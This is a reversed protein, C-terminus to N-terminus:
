VKRKFFTSFHIFKKKIQDEYDHKIRFKSSVHDRIEFFHKIGGGLNRKIMNNYSESLQSSTHNFIFVDPRLSVLLKHRIPFINNEFYHSVSPFTSYIEDLANLAVNISRSYFLTNVLEIFHDKKPHNRSITNLVAAIKHKLCLIHALEQNDEMSACIGSDEDSIVCKLNASINKLINLIWNYIDKSESSVFAIGGSRLEGDNGQLAVPIIPWSLFNPISTGDVVVFDGFKKINELEDSTLTFLGDTLGNIDQHIFCQGKDQMYKLLLETESDNGTDETKYINHIDNQTLSIAYKDEVYRIIQFNSVGVKKLYHVDEHLQDPYINNQPIELEHSHEFNSHRSLIYIGNINQRFSLHFPCGSKKTRKVSKHTQQLSCYFRIRDSNQSDLKCIKFGCSEALNKLYDSLDKGNTFKTQSLEEYNM